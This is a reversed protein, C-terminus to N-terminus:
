PEMLRWGKSARRRPDLIRSPGRPGDRAWWARKGHALPPPLSRTCRHMRTSEGIHFRGFSAGAFLLAVEEHNLWRSSRRAVLLEWVARLHTTTRRSRVVMLDVPDAATGIAPSEDGL